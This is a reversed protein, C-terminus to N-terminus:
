LSQNREQTAPTIMQATTTLKHTKYRRRGRRRPSNAQGAHNMGQLDTPHDGTHGEIIEPNIAWLDAIHSHDAIHGICHTMTTDTATDEAHQTLDNHAVETAATDTGTNHDLSAETHITIVRAAIDKTTPSHDPSTEDRKIKGTTGQAQDPM